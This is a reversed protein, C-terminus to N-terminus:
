RSTSPAILTEPTTTECPCAGGLELSDSGASRAVPRRARRRRLRDRRRGASTGASTRTARSRRLRERKAAFTLEPMPPSSRRTRREDDFGSAIGSGPADRARRTRQVRMRAAADGARLHEIRVPRQCGDRRLKGRDAPRDDPARRQPRQKRRQAAAAGSGARRASRRARAPPCSARRTGGSAGCSARALDSAPVRAVLEVDLVDVEAVARHLGAPLAPAHRAGDDAVLILRHDVLVEERPAVSHCMCAISRKRRM